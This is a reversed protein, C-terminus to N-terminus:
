INSTNATLRCNKSFLLRTPLPHSSKWQWQGINYDNGVIKRMRMQRGVDRMAYQEIPNLESPVRAPLFLFLLFAGLDLNSWLWLWLWLWLIGYGIKLSPFKEGMHISTYWALAM